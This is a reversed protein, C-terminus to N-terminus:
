GHRRVSAHRNSARPTPGRPHRQLKGRWPTSRHVPLTVTSRCCAHFAGPPREDLAPPRRQAVPAQRPHDASRPRPPWDRPLHREVACGARRHHRNGRHRPHRASQIRFRRQRRVHCRTVREAALGHLPSQADAIARAIVRDRLQMCAAQVAPGVSAASMSGGSVPARPLATDGLDYRVRSPPVGLTEAAVQTMVTYTGPGIDQSGSQVVVSGDPQLQARASAAMRHGPYTASAVGWGVLKGEDRMSRPAPSRRSWGFRGAAQLYCERLHRSSFPKGTDSEKTAENRLRLAVPDMKLAVALEDMAVELAFSGTAEGPARQFTPTGTNLKVLRHTTAGNPCAYLMQTILASPEVFDEFDSTHSV